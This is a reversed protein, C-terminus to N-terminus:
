QVRYMCTYLTYNHFSFKITSFKFIINSTQSCFIFIRNSGPTSPCGLELCTPMHIFSNSLFSPIIVTISALSKTFCRPLFLLFHQEKPITHYMYIYCVDFLSAPFDISNSIYNFICILIYMYSTM